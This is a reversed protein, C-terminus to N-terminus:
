VRGAVAREAAKGDNEPHAVVQESMEEKACEGNACPCGDNALTEYSNCLKVKAKAKAPRAIKNRIALDVYEDLTTGVPMPRARQRRERVRTAMPDNEDAVCFSHAPRPAAGANEVANLSKKPKPCDKAIHGVENCNFCPRKNREVSPNPCEAVM